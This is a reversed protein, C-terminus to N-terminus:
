SAEKGRCSVQTDLGVKSDGQLGLRKESEMSRKKKQGMNATFVVDDDPNQM